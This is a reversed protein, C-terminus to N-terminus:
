EAWCETAYVRWVLTKLNSGNILEPFKKYFKQLTYCVGHRAMTLQKDM